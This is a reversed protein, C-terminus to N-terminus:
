APQWLEIRNGEPDQIWAFEGIGDMTERPKVEPHGGAALGACFADLDTIRFNLMHRQDGGFYETDADFAAFVTPGPGPFWPGDTMPDAPIGFHTHYWAGLSAPDNARFFVGGIGDVLNSTM